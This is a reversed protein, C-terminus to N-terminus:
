VTFGFIDDKKLKKQKNTLFKQTFKDFHERICIMDKGAPFIFTKINGNTVCQVM